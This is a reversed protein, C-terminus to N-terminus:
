TSALQGDQERGCSLVGLGRWERVHVVDQPQLVAVRHARPKKRQAKFKRTFGEYRGLFDLAVKKLGAAVDKLEERQAAKDALLDLGDARYDYAEQTAIM